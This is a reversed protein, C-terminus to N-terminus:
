LVIGTLLLTILALSGSALFLFWIDSVIEKEGAPRGAILTRVLTLPAAPDESSALRGDGLLRTPRAKLERHETFRRIKSLFFFSNQINPFMAVISAIETRSLIALAGLSAGISLQGVNGSFARSPFRNYYFFGLLTFLLSAYLFITTSSGGTFLSGILLGGSVIAIGGSMSGNLPDLMNVANSSVSIAVLITLPYIVPLHYGGFLPVRLTPNYIQGPFAFGLILIPLGCFLTLLPKFIGRMKLRDDVAGVLAALGVVLSYALLSVSNSGGILTYLAAFLILTIPVAAGCMEPVTPRSLKHVDIGVIKHATNWFMFFRTLALSAPFSGLAVLIAITDWDLSAM